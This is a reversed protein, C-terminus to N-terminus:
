RLPRVLTAQWSIQLSLNGVLVALVVANFALQATLVLVAAVAVAL